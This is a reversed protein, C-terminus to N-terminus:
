RAIWAGFIALAAVKDVNRTADRVDPPVWDPFSVTRTVHHIPEPM